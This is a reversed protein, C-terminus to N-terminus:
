QLCQRDEFKYTGSCLEKVQNTLMVGLREVKQRHEGESGVHNTSEQGQKM